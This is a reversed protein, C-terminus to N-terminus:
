SAKKEEEEAKVSEDSWGASIRQQLLDRQMTRLEVRTTLWSQEETVVTLARRKEEIAKELNAIETELSSKQTVATDLRVKASELDEQVAKQCAKARRRRGAMLTEVTPPTVTIRYSITKERMWSYENDFEFKLLCPVTGM